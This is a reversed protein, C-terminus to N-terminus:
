VQTNSTNTAPEDDINLNIQVPPTLNEIKEAENFGLMKNVIEIAKLAFPPAVNKNANKIDVLDKLLEEKTIEFKKSLKAQRDAVEKQINVNALLRSSAATAVNDEKPGYVIKYAASANMGNAFLADIFQIHKKNTIM